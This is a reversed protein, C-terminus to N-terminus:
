EATNEFLAAFTLKDGKTIKVKTFLDKYLKQEKMDDILYEKRHPDAYHKKVEDLSIGAGEAIKEFEADVEEASISIDSDKLLSEVIIRGKLMKESDGSMQNLMAEKTQGSSAVMKDLQEVTTQFQQAMMRWRSELEAAIMSQPLEIPYKEILQEILDNSKLERLRNELATNLNKRIDTKLDELTKYKEHVDQALEDDLEPLNREKLGDITVRIHKTKGKLDPDEEKDDYTKTIDKTEGKKMGIIEDDIKYINQGSGITFVFGERKTDELANGKEDLECYNITVIDDKKAKADDKKDIVMANREQIAKLEEKLEAEGVSVQPEKITIGSFDTVKVSPMIDYRIEFSFDEGIKLEPVSDMQPQAYALPRYESKEEDFKTFIDELCADIIEAAAEAKLSEGYKNELVSLPAKGKRFGPIQISKAYKQLTETYKGEADAAKVTVALSAQSAEKKSVTHSSKM